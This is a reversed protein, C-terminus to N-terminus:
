GDISELMSEMEDTDVAARIKVIRLAGKFAKIDLKEKYEDLLTKRDEQLLKIENEITGLKEVLERVDDRTAM